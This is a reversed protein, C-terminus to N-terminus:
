VAYNVETEKPKDYIKFDKDGFKIDGPICRPKCMQIYRDTDPAHKHEEQPKESTAKGDQKSDEETRYNEMAYVSNECLESWMKMYHGPQLRNPTCILDNIIRHGAEISQVDDKDPTILRFRSATWGLEHLSNNFLDVEKVGYDRINQAGFRPDIVMDGIPLNISKLVAVLQRCPEITPRHYNKIEHFHKGKFEGDFYSPLESVHYQTGNPHVVMINFYDPIAGHPDLGVYVTGIKPCWKGWANMIQQHTLVHTNRSFSPFIMRHMLLWDGWERANLELGKFHSLYEIIEVQSKYGGNCQCGVPHKEKSLEVPLHLRQLKEEALGAVCMCNLWIPMKYVGVKRTDATRFFDYLHSSAGMPTFFYWSRRVLGRLRSMVSSHVDEPPPEDFTVGDIEPGEMNEKKWSIFRLTDGGKVKWYKDCGWSSERSHDVIYGAPLYSKIRDQLADSFVLPDSVTWLNLPRNPIEFVGKIPYNHSLLGALILADLQTKGSWNGGIAAITNRKDCLVDGQVRHWTAYKIPNELRRQRHEALLNIVDSRDPLGM